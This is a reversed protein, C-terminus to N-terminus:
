SEARKKRGESRQVESVKATGHQKGTVIKEKKGEKREEDKKSGERRESKPHCVYLHGTENENRWNWCKKKPRTQSLRTSSKDWLQVGCRCYPM